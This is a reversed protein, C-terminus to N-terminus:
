YDFVLPKNQATYANKRPKITVRKTTVQIEGLYDLAVTQPLDKEILLNEETDYVHLLPSFRCTDLFRLFIVAKRKSSIKEKFKMLMDEGQEVAQQVCSLIRTEDFDESIFYTTLVNKIHLITKNWSEPSGLKNYFDEEVHINCYRFWPHYRDVNDSLNMEEAMDCTTFNIYLHDFDGLSFENERLKMVVRKIVANLKKDSFSDTIYGGFENQSESKFLRIDSIIKKKM